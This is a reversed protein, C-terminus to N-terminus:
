ASTMCGPRPHQLWTQCRGQGTLTWRSGGEVMYMQTHVANARWGPIFTCQHQHFAELSSSGRACRLVDLMKCGKELTGTKTYLHVGPPDVICPLHKQQVSWVQEMSEINILRLGTTDTLEWMEKMLQDIIGKMENVERTRRRCHRALESSIIAATIQKETPIVGRYKKMLEARKADRLQAYDEKDWVFICSSFKSCFTGYLPHHETTLGKTFRRMFHFIDLWVHCKWPHFWELVAPEGTQSCCDRDLYIVEPEPEGADRYRKVMGQCVGYM